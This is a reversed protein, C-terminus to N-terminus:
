GKGFNFDAGEIMHTPQVEDRVIAWFAEATLGLVEQSPPLVVYEEVGAKELLERKVEPPTLRPPALEPKLVTLPHPEFTVVAVKRSPSQERLRYMVALLSRHGLHLGDFNGISIVGGPALSRLGTIGHHDLM